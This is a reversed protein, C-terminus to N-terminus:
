CIEIIHSLQSVGDSGQFLVYGRILEVLICGCSWMDVTSKTESVSLILEPARYFRSCLYPQNNDTEDPFKATGFDCVALRRTHPDVLLNAPKLDRHVIRQRVLAGVGRLLQYSYLRVLMM